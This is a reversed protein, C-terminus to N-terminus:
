GMVREILQESEAAPTNIHVKFVEPNWVEVHDLVGLILAKEGAELGIEEMHEKKLMVRGQGDFTVEDANMVMLRIANRVELRYQNRQMMEEEKAAWVDAPYLYICRDGMGTTAVFTNNAEPRMASRLKAPVAVRGKSDVSYEYNGKFGAM